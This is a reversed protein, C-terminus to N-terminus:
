KIKLMQRKVAKALLLVSLEHLEDLPSTINALREAAVAEAELEAVRHQLSKVSYHLQDVKFQLENRQARMSVLCEHRGDYHYVQCCYACHKNM